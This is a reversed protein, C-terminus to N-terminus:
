QCLCHKPRTRTQCKANPANSANTYGSSKATLALCIKAILKAFNTAFDRANTLVPPMSKIPKMKIIPFSRKPLIQLPYPVYQM